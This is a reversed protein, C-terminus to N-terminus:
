PSASYTQSFEDGFLGDRGPTLHGSSIAAASSKPPASKGSPEFSFIIETQGNTKTRLWLCLREGGRCCRIVRQVRQPLKNFPNKSKKAM